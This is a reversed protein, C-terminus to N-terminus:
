DIYMGNLYDKEIPLRHIEMKFPISDNIKGTIFKYDKIQADIYELPHNTTSWFRMQLHEEEIKYSGYHISDNVSLM